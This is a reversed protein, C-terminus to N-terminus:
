CARRPCPPYMKDLLREIADPNDFVDPEEPVVVADLVAVAVARTPWLDVPLDDLVGAASLAAQAAASATRITKPLHRTQAEGLVELVAAVARRYGDSVRRGPKTIGREFNCVSMPCCGALAAMGAITLGAEIRLHRQEDPSPLVRVPEATRALRVLRPDLGRAPARSM